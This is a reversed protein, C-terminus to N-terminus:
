VRGHSAVPQHRCLSPPDVRAVVGLTVVGRLETIDVAGGSRSSASAVTLAAIAAPIPPRAERDIQHPSPPRKMHAERPKGSTMRPVSCSACSRVELAALDAAGRPAPRPLSM